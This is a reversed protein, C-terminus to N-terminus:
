IKRSCTVFKDFKDYVTNKSLFINDAIIVIGVLNTTVVTVATVHHHHYPHRRRRRYYM